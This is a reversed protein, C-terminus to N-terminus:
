TVMRSLQVESPRSAMGYAKRQVLGEGTPEQNEPLSSISNSSVLQNTSASSPLGHHSAGLAGSDTGQFQFGLVKVKRMQLVHTIIVITLVVFISCVSMSLTLPFEPM